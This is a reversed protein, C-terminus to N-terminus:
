TEGKQEGVYEHQNCPVSLQNYELIVCRKWCLIAGLELNYFRVYKCNECTRHSESM